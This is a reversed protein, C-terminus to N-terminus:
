KSILNLPKLYEIVAIDFTMANLKKGGRQWDIKNLYAIVDTTIKHDKDPTGTYYMVIDHIKQFPIPLDLIASKRKEKEKNIKKINTGTQTGSLIGNQTGTQTGNCSVKSQYENYKVITIKSFKNNAEHIIEGTNVLHEICIRIQHRTMGTEGSLSNHSTILQGRKVDHIGLFKGNTFNAKLILHIFLKLVNSNSHKYWEWEMIRKDLTIFGNM